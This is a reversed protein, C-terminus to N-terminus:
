QAHLGLESTRLTAASRPPGLFSHQKCPGNRDPPATRDVAPSVSIGSGDDFPLFTCFLSCPAGGQPGAVPPRSWILVRSRNRSFRSIMISWSPSVYRRRRVLFPFNIRVLYLCEGAMAGSRAAALVSKRSRQRGPTDRGAAEAAPRMTSHGTRRGSRAKISQWVGPKRVLTRLQVPLPRRTCDSSGTGM